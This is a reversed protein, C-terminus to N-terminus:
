SNEGTVIPLLNQAYPAFQLKDLTCVNNEATRGTLPICESADDKTCVTMTCTAGTFETKFTFAERQVEVMSSQEGTEIVQGKGGLGNLHMYKFAFFGVIVLVVVLGIIKIPQNEPNNWFNM